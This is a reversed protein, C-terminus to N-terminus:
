APCNSLQRLVAYTGGPNTSVKEDGKISPNLRFMRNLIGSKPAVETDWFRSRFTTKTLEGDGNPCFTFEAFEASDDQKEFASVCLAALAVLALAMGLARHRAVKRYNM